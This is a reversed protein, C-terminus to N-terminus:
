RPTEGPEIELDRPRILRAITGSGQDVDRWHDVELVIEALAGTPFKTAVLGRLGNGNDRALMLALHELGPNHGVILLSGIRDSTAHVLDLLTATSALYVRRDYDIALAGYSQVVGDITETVRAAPSALTRDFALGRTKMERGVILAAHKGRANLPREFDTAVADEWSSKAHRLLTLTKM